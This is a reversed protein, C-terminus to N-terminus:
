SVGSLRLETESLESYSPELLRGLEGSTAPIALAFRPDYSKVDRASVSFAGTNKVGECYHRVHSNLQLVRAPVPADLNSRWDFGWAKRSTFLYSRILHEVDWVTQFPTYLYHCQFDSFDAIDEIFWRHNMNKLDACMMAAEVPVNLSDPDYCLRSTVTSSFAHKMYDNELVIRSEGESVQEIAAGDGEFFDSFMKMGANLLEIYGPRGARPRWRSVNYDYASLAAAYGTARKSKSAALAFSSRIENRERMVKISWEDQDTPEVEFYETLRWHWSEVQYTTEFVHEGHDGWSAADCELMDVAGKFDITETDKTYFKLNPLFEILVEPLQDSGQEHLEFWSKENGWWYTDDKAAVVAERISLGGRELM